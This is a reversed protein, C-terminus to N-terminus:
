KQLDYRYIKEYKGNGLPATEIYEWGTKEYYNDHETILYLYDYNLERAHEISVQQLRKGVGNNRFEEKVFLTAMWPFLDQRATLDNRWLSVVGIVKEKYKAIFMQPIDNKNISHKTRYIIDELKAGHIESWEKWIWESVENVYGQENALNVIEIEDMSKYDGM